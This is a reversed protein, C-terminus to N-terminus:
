ASLPAMRFAKSECSKLRESEPPKGSAVVLLAELRRREREAALM